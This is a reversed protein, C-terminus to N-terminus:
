GVVGSNDYYMEKGERRTTLVGMEKLDSIKKKVTIEAAGTEDSVRKALDSYIITGDALEIIRGYVKDHNLEKKFEGLASKNSIKQISILLDLKKSLERLLKTSEDSIAMVM